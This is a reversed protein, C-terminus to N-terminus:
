SDRVKLFIAASSCNTTLETYVDLVSKAILRRKSPTAHYAWEERM